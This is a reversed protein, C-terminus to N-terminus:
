KGPLSVPDLYPQPDRRKYYAGTQRREHLTTFEYQYLTARVQKPKRGQFPDEALLWLVDPSGQLLRICLGDFWGGPRHPRLAAFWLQWDLRPQHPANFRPRQDVDVPKYKFRYPVWNVGDLTGEVVIEPREKTMVAFLGYRNAAHVASSYELGQLAWGPLREEPVFMLLVQVLSLCFLALCLIGRAVAVTLDTRDPAPGNRAAVGAADGEIGALADGAGASSNVAQADSSPTESISPESVPPDSVPIEPQLKNLLFRPLLRRIWADPLLPIALVASLLNFFGYNGTLAIGAQLAILLLAAWRRSRPFFVAFPVVLEIVFMGFTLLRKIVSPLQHAYYAVPSPLPQTFFHFDLATLDRWSPDGSALKAWGAAFMFRLLLWFLLWRGVRVVPNLRLRLSPRFLALPLSWLATELLLSDWQFGMFDRGASVFSLYCLWAGVIAIVELVGLLLLISFVIGLCCVLHLANDGSGLWFFSPLLLVREWGVQKSVARFFPTVPLVGRAGILGLVQPWLSLFAFLFTLGLGRFFLWIGLPGDADPAAQAVFGASLAQIVRRQVGGLRSFIAQLKPSM